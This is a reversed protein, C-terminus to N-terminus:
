VRAADLRLLDARLERSLEDLVAKQDGMPTRTVCDWEGDVNAM